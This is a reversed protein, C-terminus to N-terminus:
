VLLALAVIKDLPALGPCQPHDASVQNHGVIHDRDIPVLHLKCLRAILEASAQVMVDPWPTTATGEHEIGITFDNPNVGPHTRVLECPPVVPKVIGAHYACDQDRVYQHIAGDKGIGYHASVKSVPNNFWADTGALSGGMVHAVIGLVPWGSATAPMIHRARFNAPNAGIWKIQQM